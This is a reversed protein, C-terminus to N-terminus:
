TKYLVLAIDSSYNSPFFILFLNKVSKLQESQSRQFLVSIWSACCLTEIPVRYMTVIPQTFNYMCNLTGVNQRVCVCLPELHSFGASFLNVWHSKVLKETWTEAFKCLKRKRENCASCIRFKDFRQLCSGDIERTKKIDNRAPKQRKAWSHSPCVFFRGVRLQVFRRHLYSYTYM